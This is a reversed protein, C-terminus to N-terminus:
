REAWRYRLAPRRRSLALVATYAALRWPGPAPCAPLPSGDHIHGEFVLDRVPPPPRPPQVPRAGGASPTDADRSSPRCAGLQRAHARLDVAGAVVRRATLSSVALSLAAYYVALAAVAVPVKWLVDAHDRCTTSRATKSVLMQGVFLM